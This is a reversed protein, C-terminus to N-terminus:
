ANRATAAVALEELVSRAEPSLPAARVARLADDLLAGILGEVRDCAGTETLVARLAALGEDSLRPDGLHRRVAAAQAPTARELA